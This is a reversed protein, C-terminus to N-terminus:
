PPLELHELPRLRGCRCSAGQACWKACRLCYHVTSPDASPDAAPDSLAFLADRLHYAPQSPLWETCSYTLPSPAPLSPRQLHPGPRPLPTNRRQLLEGLTCLEAPSLTATPDPEVLYQVSIRRFLATLLPHSPDYPISRVPRSPLSWSEQPPSM